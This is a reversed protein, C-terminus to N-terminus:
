KVNADKANLELLLKQAPKYEPALELAAFVEEKADATQKASQLARALQYHAGAPDVPKGALVARYELIAGAPNGLELDLDGLKQHAQDDGLYIYNMRQLTRAAARKDGAATEMESLRKLTDPNRGGVEAYRKLQGM